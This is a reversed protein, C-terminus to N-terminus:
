GAATWYVIIDRGRYGTAGVTFALAPPEATEAAPDPIGFERYPAWRLQPLEERAQGAGQVEELRRRLANVLDWTQIDNVVHAVHEARDLAAGAIDQLSFGAVAEDEPVAHRFNRM